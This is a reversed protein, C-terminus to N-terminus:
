AMKVLNIMIIILLLCLILFLTATKKMDDIMDCFAMLKPASKAIESYNRANKMAEYPTVSYQTCVADIANVTTEGIGRRPCNIIRRLRVMDAPNSIFCLYAIIDKIETSEEIM